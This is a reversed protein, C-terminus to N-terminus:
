CHLFAIADRSVKIEIWRQNKHNFKWFDDLTNSTQGGMEERQNWCYVSWIVNDDMYMDVEYKKYQLTLQILYFISQVHFLFLKTVFHHIKCVFKVRFMWQTGDLNMIMFLCTQWQQYVCQALHIWDLDGTFVWIMNPPLM